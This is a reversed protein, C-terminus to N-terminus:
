LLRHRLPRLQTWVFLFDLYTAAKYCYLSFIATDTWGGPKRTGQFWYGRPYHGFDTEGTRKPRYTQKFEAISRSLFEVRLLLPSDIEPPLLPSLLQNTNCSVRQLVLLQNGAPHRPTCQTVEPPPPPVVHHQAKQPQPPNPRQLLAPGIPASLLAHHPVCHM